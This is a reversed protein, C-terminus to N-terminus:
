PGGVIGMAALREEQVALRAAFHDWGQNGSWALEALATQRPWILYDAEAWTAVTETWLSAEIGLIADPSVGDPVPDWAYSDEVTTFGAWFTGVPSAADYMMDLYAHDAPSAIIQAGQEAAARAVDPGHWWQVIPPSPMESLDLDAAEDWVIPQKGQAQAVAMAAGLMAAYDEDATQMAEDGGLHFWPGPTQAAVDAVVETIFRDTCAADPDLTSQGVQIGTYPAPAIGDANLCPYSSLAAHVHGPLDIEPVVVVFRAAAYAVLAAYDSSSYFGGEGGGVETAGGIATLDPWDTVAIRWGQDDTLHLHLRNLKHAAMRDIHAKLEDVTFFHRAVDIMSGRWAYKPADHIVVRPVRQGDWLQALTQHAYFLGAASRATLEVTRLRVELEYSEDSLNGQELVEVIAPEARSDLSALALAGREVALSTPQPVLFVPEVPSCASLGALLTLVTSHIRLRQGM